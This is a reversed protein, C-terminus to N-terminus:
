RAIDASDAEADREAVDLPRLEDRSHKVAWKRPAPPRHLLPGRTTSRRAFANAISTPASPSATASPIQFHGGFGANAMASAKASLVVARPSHISGVSSFKDSSDPDGTDGRSPLRTRDMM